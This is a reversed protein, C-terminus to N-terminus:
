TSLTNLLKRLFARYTRPSGSLCEINEMALRHIHSGTQPLTLNRDVRGQGPLLPNVGVVKTDDALKFLSLSMTKKMGPTDDLTQLKISTLELSDITVAAWTVCEKDCLYYAWQFRTGITIIMNLGLMEVQSQHLQTCGIVEHLLPWGLM